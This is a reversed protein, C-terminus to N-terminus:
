RQRLRRQAVAVVHTFLSTVDTLSLAGGCAISRPIGCAVGRAVIARRAVAGDAQALWRDHKHAWTIVATGAGCAGAAEKAVRTRQTASHHRFHLADVESPSVMYDSRGEFFDFIQYDNYTNNEPFTSMTNNSSRRGVHASAM